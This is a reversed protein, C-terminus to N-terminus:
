DPRPITLLFHNAEPRIHYPGPLTVTRPGTAPSTAFPPTIQVRCPGAIAGSLAANGHSTILSFSGDEATGASMNRAEQQESIFQVLAKAVPQGDEYVVKGTVTYTPPPPPGTDGRGCGAVV